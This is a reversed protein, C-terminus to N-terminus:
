IPAVRIRWTSANQAEPTAEIKVPLFRPVLEVQTRTHPTPEVTRFVGGKAVALPVILQDALHLGVPADTRLSRKVEGAARRAVKEAMIGPAGLGVFVDTVQEYELTLTVANGPSPATIEEARIEADTFALEERVVGLERNAVKLPISAVVAKAERRLLKGRTVLELSGLPSPTVKVEIRGGGAPEFGPRILAVELKAGLRTLIPLLSRELFEFPPALGNHTGGEVAITIPATARLLAPLVAQLVLTTSGATGISFEFDGSVLARPRFRLEMSGLEAGEVEANGLKAAAQVGTLHQRLLGPRERGGRIRVIRFEKGTVLSLGLATRLVQGGGEGESGDILLM